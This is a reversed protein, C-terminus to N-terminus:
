VSWDVTKRLLFMTKSNVQKYRLKQLYVNKIANTNM